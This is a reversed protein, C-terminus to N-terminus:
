RSGRVAARVGVGVRRDTGLFRGRNVVRFTELLGGAAADLFTTSTM